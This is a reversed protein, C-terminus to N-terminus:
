RSSLICFPIARITDLSAFFAEVMEPDFQTGAGREIEKLADHEQWVDKYARRSSLADYVDAVAVIRGWLPIDHGQKGRPRGQSDEYGAIVRGTEPDVYGPYGTGDWREHHTLAVQAAMGGFISQAPIFLRAGLVTHRQMLEYEVDTLQGAKNLIAELISVKGIDHVIAAIRLTDKLPKLTRQPVGQNRAWTDYIEAAYVGVRYAHARISQPYCLAAMRTARFPISRLLQYRQIAMIITTLVMIRKFYQRCGSANM